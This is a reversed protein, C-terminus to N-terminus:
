CEALNACFNGARRRRAVPLRGRNRGYCSMMAERWMESAAKMGSLWGTENSQREDGVRGGRMERSLCVIGAKQNIRTAEASILYDRREAAHRCPSRRYALLLSRVLRLTM